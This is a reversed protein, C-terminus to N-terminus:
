DARLRLTAIEGGRLELGDDRVPQEGTEDLRTRSVSVPGLVRARAPLEAPNFCRLILGDGDQAGKLCSFVVDGELRLPPEFEVPAPSVLFGYRYDQAERLLQADDLGDAGPLLAYELEHRGLCQGEPTLVGPGAGWHRTSLAGTPKSIVGVCRLLTLALEAGRGGSRAEYEPLGKSLLALPGLAVAGLTHHTPDPPECWEARPAPPHLPRHVVAFQGEARVPGHADGAPFVVRLRHDAATNQVTARFEIRRSGLILRVVTTIGITVTEALPRAQEDLGAPRQAEVRLELEWISPGATLVRATAEEGRWADIDPVPCFNYLDGMDHEDELAHLGEYRRGTGKDLVSLTGDAAAEVRYLDNEVAPGPQAAQAPEAPRAPDEAQAPEAPRAPQAPRAPHTTVPRAAFGDLEVLAPARGAVEILGRRRYPLPNFVGVASDEGGRPLDSLAAEQLISLTRQLSEYRVLMDRHVEDCSCGCISDHPQCRLLEGWAFTFDSVPLPNPDLLTGLAALTEVSLLRREALENAQKLYLRASNVGRLVNQVRSGVLEGSVSPVAPPRAARVYDAYRAIQFSSGPMRQALEALLAPLEPQISFHDSGNCLLVEDVGARELAAGFRQEIGDIRRQADEADSVAAFNDYSALQQHALVESGDPARWRFIVGADDLQDGLGRMFIMSEIGFGALIQPLQLPHGFSDPLYGAPSALAGFRECVARGILLNRVLSEGGVLLEDPLVYSPGVEIRGTGLLARLRAENEPRVAVYDELVIAQGDLTFSSFAPDQELVELVGDVVRALALQFYEFPRYWERDWHTHPM